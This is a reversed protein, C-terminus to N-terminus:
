STEEGTSHVSNVITPAAASEGDGGNSALKRSDQVSIPGTTALRRLIGTVARRISWEGPRHTQVFEAGV